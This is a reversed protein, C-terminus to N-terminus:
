FHHACAHILINESVSQIKISPCPKHRSYHNKNNTSRKEPASTMKVDEKELDALKNGNTLRFQAIETDETPKDPKEVLAL